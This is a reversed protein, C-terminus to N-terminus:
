CFCFNHTEGWVGRMVIDIDNFIFKYKDFLQGLSGSWKVKEAIYLGCSRGRQAVNRKIERSVTSPHVGIQTAIDKQKLGAKLLADM